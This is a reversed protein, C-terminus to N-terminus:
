AEPQKGLLQVLGRHSRVKTRVTGMGPSSGPRERSCVQKLPARRGIGALRAVSSRTFARAARFACRHHGGRRTFVLLHPRRQVQYRGYGADPTLPWEGRCSAAAGGSRAYRTIRIESRLRRGGRNSDRPRRFSPSSRLLVRTLWRKGSPGRRNGPARSASVWAKRHHPQCRSEEMWGGFARSESGYMAGTCWHSGTQLRPKKRDAQSRLHNM